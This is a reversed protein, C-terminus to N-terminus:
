GRVEGIEFCEETETNRLVLIDGTRLGLESLPGQLVHKPLQSQKLEHVTEFGNAKM